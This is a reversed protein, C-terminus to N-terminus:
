NRRPVSAQHDERSPGGDLIPHNEDIWAQESTFIEVSQPSAGSLFYAVYRFSRGVLWFAGAVIAFILVGGFDRYHADDMVAVGVLVTLVAGM